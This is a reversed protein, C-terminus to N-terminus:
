KVKAAKPPGSAFSEGLSVQLWKELTEAVATHGDVDLHSDQNTMYILHSDEAARRRLAGTVDIFPCGLQQCFRAAEHAFDRESDVIGGPLYQDKDNQDNFLVYPELVRVKIPVFVVVLKIGRSQCLRYGSELASKTEAFGLSERAPEDPLYSYDLYVPGTTGDKHQLKLPVAPLGKSMTFALLRAIFSHKTYRQAWSEKRIPQKQWEAFRRADVLDNGEFLQWVVVRPNYSFGQKQLVILEQQPGYYGCGLNVVPRKLKKGLQQVFTDEEPVSAGETFSDGIFVIDAKQIGPENRFGREDTRYTIYRAEPSVRGQWFVGPKRSFGLEDDPNNDNRSISTGDFWFDSPGPSRLLGQFGIAYVLDLLVVTALTSVFICALRLALQHRHTGIAYVTACLAAFLLPMGVYITILRFHGWGYVGRPRFLPLIWIYASATWLLIPVLWRRVKEDPVLLTGRERAEGRWSLHDFLNRRM